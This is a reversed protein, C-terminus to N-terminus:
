NPSIDTALYNSVSPTKFGIWLKAGLDGQHTLIDKHQYHALRTAADVKAAEEPSCSFLAALTAIRDSATMIEAM